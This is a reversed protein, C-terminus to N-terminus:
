SYFNDSDYTSLERKLRQKEKVNEIERWKRKKLRKSNDRNIQEIDDQFDFEDWQSDVM